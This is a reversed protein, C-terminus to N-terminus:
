LFHNDLSHFFHMLSFLQSHKIHKSLLAATLLAPSPVEQTVDEPRFHFIKILITGDVGFLGDIM